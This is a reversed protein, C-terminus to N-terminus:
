LSLNFSDGDTRRFFRDPRLGSFSRNKGSKARLEQRRPAKATRNYFIEIEMMELLRLPLKSAFRVACLGTKSRNERRGGKSLFTARILGRGWRYRLRVIAPM